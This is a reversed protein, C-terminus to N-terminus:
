KTMKAQKPSWSNYKELIAQRTGDADMEKLAADVATKLEVDDTRFAFGAAGFVYPSKKEAEVWEPKPIYPLPEDIVRLNPFTEAQAVYTLQDVVVASVQNNELALFPEGYTNFDRVEKANGRAVFDHAVISDTTGLVSGITHGRLDAAARFPSNGQVILYDYFILFPESFLVNANSLREQTIGLPTSIFDCKKSQLAPFLAQWEMVVVEYDPIGLKSLVYESIDVELGVYKGEENQWIYPKLGMVGTCFKMTGAEKAKSLTNASSVTASMTLASVAAILTFLMKM